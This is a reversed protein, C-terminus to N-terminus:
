LAAFAILERGVSRSTWASIEEEEGVGQQIRRRNVHVNNHFPTL